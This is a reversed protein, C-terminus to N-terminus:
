DNIYITSLIGLSDMLCGATKNGVKSTVYHLCRQAIPVISSQGDKNGYDLRSLIFDNEPENENKM